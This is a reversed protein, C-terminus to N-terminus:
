PLAAAVREVPLDALDASRLVTPWAGGPGRPATLAPDSEASFLVVSPCGIATALHMPGTDNGVAIVAGRALEAIDAIATRGVLDIADPIAAALDREAGSGIVVPAIGRGALIRALAAYRAVPWRKAPRHPAAGPILLAYPQPLDFGMGRLWNLDPAPAQTIGAMALQERQRELTHMFDRRPNAHPLACGRAIGSWRPRGALTFYRSSRSSTQLDYVLDFGRLQRALRLVGAANWWAPKADVAVRDFWPARRALDAFPATTLLTIDAGPHQARIAAFAAFSLVMDGLAGLRIVLLRHPLTV